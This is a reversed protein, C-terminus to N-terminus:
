TRQTTRCPTSFARLPPPPSAVSPPQPPSAAPPPARPLPPFPVGGNHLYLGRSNTPSTAATATAAALCVFLIIPLMKDIRRALHTSILSSGCANAATKIKAISHFVMLEWSCPCSLSVSSLVSLGCARKTGSGSLRPRRSGASLYWPCRRESGPCYSRLGLACCLPRRTTSIPVMTRGTRTRPPLAAPRAGHGFHEGCSHVGCLPSYM